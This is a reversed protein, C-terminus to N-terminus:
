RQDPVSCECYKKWGRIDLAAAPFEMFAIADELTTDTTPVFGHFTAANHYINTENADVFEKWAKQVLTLRTITSLPLLAVMELATDGSLRTLPMIFGLSPPPVSLFLSCSSIDCGRTTVYATM